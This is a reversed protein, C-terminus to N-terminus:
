DRESPGRASSAGVLMADDRMVYVTKQRTKSYVVLCDGQSGTVNLRIGPNLQDVIEASGSSAARAM